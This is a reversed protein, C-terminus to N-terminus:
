RRASARSTSSGGSPAPGSRASASGARATPTTRDATGTSSSRSAATSTPSSRQGPRDRRRRGDPDGRRTGQAHRAAPPLAPRDAPLPLLVPVRGRGAGGVVYTEGMSGSHSVSTLVYPGDGSFHKSLAFTHGATLRRSTSAGLISLGESAETEMLLKVTRTGDDPIKGVQDAQEGGGHTIGDYRKAYSGPYDYLDLAATGTSQLQHTSSGAAVSAQIPQNVDTIIASAEFCHDWLKVKPTRIEQIKEWSTIREQTPKGAVLEEYLVTAGGPIDVHGAPTNALVMTHASSTHTFYYYIGEEEMLRSAFAFDTERYQVCYERPDFSGSIKNSITLGYEQFVSRIIDPVSKKEFIRSRANRTALWLKPVMEARYQILVNDSKTGRVRGGQSFRSVIGNLFRPSEDVPGLRLTIPAGLIQSYDVTQSAHAMLEIEFHFLQSIAESGQFGRLFLVDDRGAVSVAMERLSQTYSAM